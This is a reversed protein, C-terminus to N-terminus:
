ERAILEAEAHNAYEDKPFTFECKLPASSHPAITAAIEQQALVTFHGRRAKTDSTMSGITFRVRLVVPSDTHNTALTTATARNGLSEVAPQTIGVEPTFYARSFLIVLGIVVFAIVLPWPSNAKMLTPNAALNRSTPDFTKSM